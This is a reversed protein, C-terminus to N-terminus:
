QNLNREKKRTWLVWQFIGIFFIVAAWFLILEFTTEPFTPSQVVFALALLLLVPPIGASLIIKKSRLHNSSPVKDEAPKLDQNSFQLVSALAKITFPRPLVEGKEIRQISRLSIGTKEALDNQTYGKAARQTRIVEALKQKEIKM